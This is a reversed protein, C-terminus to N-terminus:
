TTAERAGPRFAVPLSTPGFIFNSGMWTPDSTPALDDLRSLMERLLEAIEIRALHAGLCFHPGGGGFAVHPNPDRDIDFRDPEDFAEPDRNAAGYYMVVKDGAAIAQGAIETDATATRRMYIVPSVWRLLEEIAGPLLGDVDDRLRALQDPHGFLTQMGAGVLNRTTDGGADVLLLFWLFFDVADVPEGDLVGHALLTALDDGPEAQKKAYVEQSYGFMAMFAEAKQERSVVEDSSHLAETHHYLARGDELPIGLVDAIVFSPMEGALDTVLDCEGLEIVEDVIQTALEAIRGRLASSSKPTFHRSVMRRMRTHVPPDAMLMMVHDGLDPGDGTPDEIMITPSSSFRQPDRGIAKVEQHRTVAWFGPGNPEDHRHVPAHERLWAFQDHPQSGAFGSVSLLDIDM